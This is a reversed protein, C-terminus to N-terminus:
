FCFLCFQHIYRPKEFKMYLKYILLLNDYNVAFVVIIEPIFLHGQSGWVCIVATAYKALICQDSMKVSANIM